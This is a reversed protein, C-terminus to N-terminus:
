GPMGTNRGPRHKHGCGVVVTGSLRPAASPLSVALPRREGHGDGACTSCAHKFKRCISHHKISSAQHKIRYARLMRVVSSMSSSMRAKARALASCSRALMPWIMESSARLAIWADALWPCGTSNRLPMWSKGARSFGATIVISSTLRSRSSSSHAIKEVDIDQNGQNVAIMEVVIKRMLPKLTFTPATPRRARDGNVAHQSDDTM